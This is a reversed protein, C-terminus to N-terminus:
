GAKKRTRSQAKLHKIHDLYYLPRGRDDFAVPVLQKRHTWSAITNRNVGAIAAGQTANVTVPSSPPPLQSPLPISGTPGNTVLKTTTVWTPDPAGHLKTMEGCHRILDRGAEFYEGGQRLHAFQRHRTVEEHRGGPEWALIEDPMLDRFRGAPDVTTGIKILPGRRLYYVISARGQEEPWLRLPSSVIQRAAVVDAARDDLAQRQRGLKIAVEVSSEDIDIGATRMEILIAAIQSFAPDEPDLLKVLPEVSPRFGSRTDRIERPTFPNRYGWTRVKGV